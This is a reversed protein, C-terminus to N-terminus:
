KIIAFKGIKKGGDPTTIVYIYVGFAVAVNSDSVLNWEEDGSDNNHHITKVKDRSITFINIDCIEPLFMFYLRRVNELTEWSANVIYPNPVVRVADLNEKEKDIYASTTSFNYIDNENLPSFANILIKQGMQPFLSSGAAAEVATVFGIDDPLDAQLTDGFNINSQYASNVIYIKEGFDYLNNGNFDRIFCNVQINRNSSTNWIQFPAKMFATRNAGGSYTYVWSSDETFRVEYNSARSELYISSPPVSATVFWQGTADVHSTDNSNVGWVNTDSGDTISEIGRDSQNATIRVSIGNFAPLFDTNLPMAQSSVCILSDHIYFSDTPAKNFKIQYAHGTLVGPDLIQLRIDGKGIGATHELLNQVASVHGSPDSRPTIKQYNKDVKKSGKASEYSEILKNPDGRDYATVTYVYEVGNYVTSDIFFHRLGTDDGLYKTGNVPDFGKINNALDYQALPVYGIFKGQADIIEQGWTAGGDESRYLKYGEFDFEGTSQDPILESSNNWYLNIMGDGPVATLKPAPPGAPGQFNVFYMSAATNVNDYFDADDNAAIIVITSYITDGAPFTFPGTGQISVWDWGDPYNNLIWEESDFHVDQGHFFGGIQDPIDPDAPNSSIIPWLEHDKEPGKDFYYHYDTIGMDHPTKLVVFGFNYDEVIGDETPTTAGGKDGHIDRSMFVAQNDSLNNFLSVDPTFMMDQYYDGCDPDWYFGWWCSDLDTDSTNIITFDYFQIDEAYSRGYTYVQMNVEIGLPNGDQNGADNFTCFVERDGSFEGFIEKDTLPDIRYRGPWFPIGTADAPWTEPLDSHALFPTGDVWRLEPHDNLPDAGQRYFLDGFSGDKAEWDMPGGDSGVYSDIVNGNNGNKSNVPCAFLVSFDDCLDAGNKSPYIFNFFDETPANYTPALRTDTISGYNMTINRLQGLTLIGVGEDARSSPKALESKDQGEDIKKELSDFQALDIQVILFISFLALMVSRFRCIM